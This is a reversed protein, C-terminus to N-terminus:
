RQHGLFLSLNLIKLKGELAYRWHGEAPGVEIPEVVGLLAFVLDEGCIKPSCKLDM